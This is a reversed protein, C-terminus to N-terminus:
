ARVRLFAVLAKKNSSIPGEAVVMSLGDFMKPLFLQTAQCHGLLRYYASSEVLLQYDECVGLIGNFNVSLM